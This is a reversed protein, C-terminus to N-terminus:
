FIIFYKIVIKFLLFNKVRREGRFSLYKHIYLFEAM